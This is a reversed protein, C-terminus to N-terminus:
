WHPIPRCPLSPPQRRQPARQQTGNSVPDFRIWSHRGCHWRRRVAMCGNFEQQHEWSTNAFAFTRTLGLETWTRYFLFDQVHRPAMGHPVDEDM